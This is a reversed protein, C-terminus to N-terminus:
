KQKGQASAPRQANQGAGGTPKGEAKKKQMEAEREDYYAFDQMICTKYNYTHIIRPRPAFRTRGCSGLSYLSRPFLLCVRGLAWSSFSDASLWDRVRACKLMQCAQSSLVALGPWLSRHEAVWRSRCPTLPCFVARMCVYKLMEYAQPEPIEQCDRSQIVCKNENLPNNIGRFAANPVDQSQHM